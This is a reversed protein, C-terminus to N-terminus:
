WDKWIPVCREPLKQLRGVERGGEGPAHFDSGASARLGFHAAYDAFVPVHGTSHSGAVVEIGVGGLDRFEGLLQNMRERGMDYRGPHAVVAQGGATNIWGVAESLTAWHHKVYGPKGPVLYKRFVAAVSNAHNDAVLFRAFHTRGIMEPNAAYANAGAFAGSIGVGALSEAMLRAREIRGSRVQALGAQFVSNTSDVQLGVIHVTRKEWTVSIEVGAVLKLEGAEAAARAEAIGAVTDHDTLALTGVGQQAAREILARPALAGDSATSHSHLDFIVLFPALCAACSTFCCAIM